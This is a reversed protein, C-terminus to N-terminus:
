ARVATRPILRLTAPHMGTLDTKQQYKRTTSVCFPRRAHAESRADKCAKELRDIPSPELLNDLAMVAIGIALAKVAPLMEHSQQEGLEGAGIAQARDLSGEVGLGVMVIVQATSPHRPGGKGIGIRAARRCDKRLQEGCEGATESTVRALFALGDQLEDIRGRHREAPQEIAGGGIAANVPELQV